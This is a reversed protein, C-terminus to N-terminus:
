TSRYEFDKARYWQPRERRPVHPNARRVTNVVRMQGRASWVRLVTSPVLPYKPGEAPPVDHEYFCPSSGHPLGTAWSLLEWDCRQAADVTCVHSLTTPTEIMRMKRTGIMMMMMLSLLLFLFVHCDDDLDDRCCGRCCGCCRRLQDAYYGFTQVRHFTGNESPVDYTLICNRVTKTSFSLTHHMRHRIGHKAEDRYMKTYVPNEEETRSWKSVISRYGDDEQSWRLIMNNMIDQSVIDFGYWFRSEIRISYISRHSYIYLSIEHRSRLGSFTNTWSESFISILNPFKIEKSPNLRDIHNSDHPVCSWLAMEKYRRKWSYFDETHIGHTIEIKYTTDICLFM